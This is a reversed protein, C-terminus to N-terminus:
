AADSATMEPCVTMSAFAAISAIKPLARGCPCIGEPALIARDGIAYRIFPMGLNHLDTLLVDGVEGPQAPRSGGGEERVVVEVIVNEASIHMGKHAECEAAILMLERSGYTEYVSPGFAAAIAARDEPELREACCITPITEWHRLGNDNIHRALDGLARSLGILTDPPARRLTAAVADLAAPTRRTCDLYRERKLARDLAIKISKPSPPTQPLPWYFITPAGLRYGAWGWGRLKIAQRFEESGADYGFHMPRDTTGVTSKAITALPERQSRRAASSEIAQARTLEPLRALDAVSRVDEPKLSLSEFRARYFPVNHFAHEILRRLAGERLAEIEDRSRWQSRELQRVLSPTARGRLGTEWLPFLVSEFFRGYRDMVPGPM